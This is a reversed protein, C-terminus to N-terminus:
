DMIKLMSIDATIAATELSEIIFSGHEASREGLKIHEAEGSLWKPYMDRYYYQSERCARLYGGTEGGAWSGDYRWRDMENPRKRYWPVYESLHGNSETSFYGFRRLVDIRVPEAKSLEPHNEFGELLKPLMNEGNHSVKIFWTQHNLGAATFDVEEQPLNLAQAIERHAGQVGHCLGLYRVGGERLVAM